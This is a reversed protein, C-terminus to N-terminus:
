AAQAVAEGEGEGALSRGAGNYDAAPSYVWTGDAAKTVTGHAPQSCSTVSAAEGDADTVAELPDFAVPTDETVTLTMNAFVPADNM